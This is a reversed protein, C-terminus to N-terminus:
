RAATEWSHATTTQASIVQAATYNTLSSASIPVRVNRSRGVQTRSVMMGAVKAIM